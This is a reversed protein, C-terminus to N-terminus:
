LKCTFVIKVWWALALGNIRNSQWLEVVIHRSLWGLLRFGGMHHKCTKPTVHGIVFHVCIVHPKYGKIIAITINQLSKPDLIHKDLTNNQDLTEWPEDLLIWYFMKNWPFWHNIYYDMFLAKNIPAPYSQPPYSLNGHNNLIQTLHVCKRKIKLCTSASTGWLSGDISALHSQRSKPTLFFLKLVQTAPQFGPKTLKTSWM